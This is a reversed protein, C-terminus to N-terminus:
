IDHIETRLPYGKGNAHNSIFTKIREALLKNTIVLEGSGTEHINMMKKQAERAEIDQFYLFLFSVFTMPTKDDNFLVVRHSETGNSELGKLLEYYEPQEDDSLLVKRTEFIKDM